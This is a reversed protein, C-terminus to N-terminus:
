PFRRHRQGSAVITSTGRTSRTSMRTTPTTSTRSDMTSGSWRGRPARQNFCRQAAPQTPQSGALTGAAAGAVLSRRTLKGGFSHHDTRM